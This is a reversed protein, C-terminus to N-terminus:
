RSRAADLVLKRLVEEGELVEMAIRVALVPLKLPLHGLLRIADKETTVLAEAKMLGAWGEVQRLDEPRYRHHDPFPVSQLLHAGLEEVERFFADPTGIGAFALVRLGRVSELPRTSGSELDVVSLPAHATPLVPVSAGCRRVIERVADLKRADARRTRTVLVADADAVAGPPERLLGRPFCSGNAFPHRADVTVLDLDRCLRLHQFGDDLVLVQVAFRSVAMEATVARHRGALVPVGPLRRALLVPEDGAVEPGLLVTAGDSVVAARGGLSGRYGRALVAPRLGEAQLMRCVTEVCPTKGTGGATVNGVSIVPVSARYSGLVGRRYAWRRLAMLRGYVWAAATLPLFVLAWGASRARHTLMERIWLHIQM